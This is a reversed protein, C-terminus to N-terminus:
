ILNLDDGNFNDGNESIDSFDKLKKLTKKRQSPMQSNREAILSKIGIFMKNDGATTKVDRLNLTPIDKIYEDKVFGSNKQRKQM